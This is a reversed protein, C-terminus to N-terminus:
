TLCTYRFQSGSKERMVGKLKEIPRTPVTRFFDSYRLGDRSTCFTHVTVFHPVAKLQTDNKHCTWVKTSIPKELSATSWARAVLLLSMVIAVFMKSDCDYYGYFILSMISYFLGWTSGLLVAQIATFLKKLKYFDSTLFM